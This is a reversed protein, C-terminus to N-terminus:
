LIAGVRYTHTIKYLVAPETSGQVDEPQYKWIDNEM